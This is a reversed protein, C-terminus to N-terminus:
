KRTSFGLSYLESVQLISSSSESLAPKLYLLNLIVEDPNRGYPETHYGALGVRPIGVLIKNDWPFGIRHIARSEEM